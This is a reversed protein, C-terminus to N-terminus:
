DRVLTRVLEPLTAVEFPKRLVGAVAARDIFQLSEDSAASSCTGCPASSSMRGRSMWEEGAASEGPCRRTSCM